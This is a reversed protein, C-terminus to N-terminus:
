LVRGLLVIERGNLALSGRETFNLREYFGVNRVGKGTVVHVGPLGAARVQDCFAEVLQGGIGKGRVSPDINIHLHAPFKRTLSAFEQFYGIDAFRATLAPDDLCGMLYGAVEGGEGVALWVYDPDNALYRGLWRERFALQTRADVFTQTGSAAFFIREIGAIGASQADPARDALREIALTM